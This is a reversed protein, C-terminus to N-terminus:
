LVPFFIGKTPGVIYVTCNGPLLVYHGVIALEYPYFGTDTSNVLNAPRKLRTGPVGFNQWCVNSNTEARSVLVM